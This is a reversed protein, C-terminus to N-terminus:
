SKPSRPAECRRPISSRLVNAFYAPVAKRTALCPRATRLVSEPPLCDLGPSLSSKVLATASGEDAARKGVISLVIDVEAGGSLLYDVRRNEISTLPHERM